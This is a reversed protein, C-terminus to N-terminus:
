REKCTYCRFEGSMPIAGCDWCRGAARWAARQAEDREATSLRRGHKLGVDSNAMAVHRRGEREDAQADDLRRLVDQSNRQAEEDSPQPAADRRWYPQHNEARRRLWSRRVGVVAIGFVVVAIIIATM